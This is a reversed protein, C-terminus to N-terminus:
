NLIADATKEAWAKLVKVDEASIKADPWKEIVEKPPMTGENLVEIIKDLRAVQKAQTYSPISDWMLAAKADDSKGKISHCGYCKNDIITKIEAPYEFVSQKGANLSEHHDVIKARVFLAVVILILGAIKLSAKM